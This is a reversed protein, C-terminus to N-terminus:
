LDGVDSPGPGEQAYVTQGYSESMLYEVLTFLLHSGGTVAAWMLPIQKWKGMLLMVPVVIAAAIYPTLCKPCEWVEIKKENVKWNGESDVDYPNMPSAFRVRDILTQPAEYSHDEDIEGDVDREIRRIRVDWNELPGFHSEKEEYLFIRTFYAVAASLMVFLEITQM